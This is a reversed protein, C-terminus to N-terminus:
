LTRRRRGVALLLLAGMGLLAWTSPEPVTVALLGDNLTFAYNAGANTGSWTKDSDFTLAVGGVSMADFNGTYSAFDFIKYNAVQNINWGNYSTITLTGKYAVSGTVKVQDFDTGAVGGAGALEMTTVTSTLLELNGTISTIGPSNGPALGGAVTLTKGAGLNVTGYGALIQGTGFTFASKATVDLTGQSGATGLNIQSSNAITGTTGLVLTGASIVTKGTYTNAGTLILANTGLKNVGISGGGTGTSNAIANTVTFNGGSANTTDFAISSGAQLGSNNVSGGLGGLNTLLTTVNGTSFEGSGGVNLALTAGSNVIVKSATWLTNNSTYLSAASAFQLTGASITTTGNYTNIGALVLTGVGSKTLGGTGQTMNTSVTFTNGPDAIDLGVTKTATLTVTHNGILGSSYTTLAAGTIQLTGGNFVLANGSGLNADAGVSLTGANLTTAGTYTNNGSLTAMGTGNKTLAVGVGGLV